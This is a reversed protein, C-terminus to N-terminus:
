KLMHDFCIYRICIIKVEILMFFNARTTMITFIQTRLDTIWGVTHCHLTSSSQDCLVGWPEFSQCGFLSLSLFMQPPPPHSSTLHKYCLFILQCHLLPLFHSPIAQPLSPLSLSPCLHHNFSITKPLAFSFLYFILPPLNHGTSCPYM